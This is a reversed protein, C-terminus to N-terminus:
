GLYVINYLTGQCCLLHHRSFSENAEAGQMRQFFKQGQIMEGRGGAKRKERGKARAITLLEITDELGMSTHPKLYIAFGRHRIFSDHRTPGKFEAGRPGKSACWKATMINKQAEM